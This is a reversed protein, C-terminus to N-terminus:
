RVYRYKTASFNDCTLETWDEKNTLDPNGLHLLAGRHWRNLKMSALITQEDQQINIEPPSFAGRKRNTFFITNGDQRIELRKNQFVGPHHIEYQKIPTERNFKEKVPSSATKINDAAAYAIASSSPMMKM